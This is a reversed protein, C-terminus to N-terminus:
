NSPNKRAIPVVTGFPLIETPFRTDLRLRSFGTHKGAAIQVFLNWRGELPLDVKKAEYVGNGISTFALTIDSNTEDPRTLIGTLNADAVPLNSKTMLTYAVLTEKMKLPHEMYYLTYNQRFEFDAEVLDNINKDIYRYKQNYDNDMQVPNTVAVVITGICLAIIAVTGISIGIPWRLAKDTKPEQSM